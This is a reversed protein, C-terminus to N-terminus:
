RKKLKAENILFIAMVCIGTQKYFGFLLPYKSVDVKHITSNKSLDGLGLMGRRLIFFLFLWSYVLQKSDTLFISITKSLPM